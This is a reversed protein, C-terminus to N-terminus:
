RLTLGLGVELVHQTWETAFTGGTAGYALNGVSGHTYRLSPVVQTRRGVPVDYGFGLMLGFGKGGIGSSVSAHYSSVGVGGTVFCHKHCLFSLYSDSLVPSLHFSALVSVIRESEGAATHWWSGVTLGARFTRGIQQQVELLTSVGGAGPGTICGSCSSNARGYAVGLAATLGGRQVAALLGDPAAAGLIL